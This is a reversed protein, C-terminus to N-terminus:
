TKIPKPKWQKPKWQKARQRIHGSSKSKHPPQPKMSPPSAMKLAIPPKEVYIIDYAEEDGILERDCRRIDYILTKRYSMRRCSSRNKVVQRISELWGDPLTETLFTYLGIGKTSRSVNRHNYSDSEYGDYEEGDYEDSYHFLLCIPAKSPSAEEKTEKIDTSM